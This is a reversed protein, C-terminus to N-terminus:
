EANMESLTPVFIGKTALVLKVYPHVSKKWGMVYPNWNITGDVAPSEFSDVPYPFEKLEAYNQEYLSKIEAFVEEDLKTPKKKGRLAFYAKDYVENRDLAIRVKTTDISTVRKNEKKRWFM